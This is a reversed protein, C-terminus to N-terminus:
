FPLAQNVRDSLHKVLELMRAKDSSQIQNILLRLEELDMKSATLLILDQEKLM